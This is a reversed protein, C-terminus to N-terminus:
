CGSPPLAELERLRASVSFDGYDFTMQDAIGNAYLRMGQEQEPLAQTEDMGFFALQVFWSVQATLLPSDFGRADGPALEQVETASVGYIGEDGSGDFVERWLPTDGSQLAELVEITHRNPFLTGPPLTVDRAEPLEFTALGGKSPTLTAKGKVEEEAEGGFLRRIFFRYTQDDKSEWASYSWGFDYVTGDSHGVEIKARQTVTWGDCADAWEFELRGSAQVVTSSSRSGSLELDYVARHPQIDIEAGLAPGQALGLTSAMAAIQLIATLGLRKVAFM